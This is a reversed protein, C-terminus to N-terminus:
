KRVQGYLDDLMEQMIKSEKREVINKAMSIHPYFSELELKKYQTELRMRGIARKLEVDTMEYVKKTKRLKDLDKREDSRANLKAQRREKIPNRRKRRSSSGSTRDKRVGWKMGKVGYHELCDEYLIM